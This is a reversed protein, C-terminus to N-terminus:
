GLIPSVTSDGLRPSVPSVAPRPSLFSQCPGLTVWSIPLHRHDFLWFNKSTAAPLTTLGFRLRTDFILTSYPITPSFSSPILDFYLREPASGLTFAVPAIGTWVQTGSDQRTKRQQQERRHLSPCLLASSLFFSHASDVGQQSQTDSSPASVCLVCVGSFLASVRLVTGLVYFQPRLACANYEIRVAYTTRNSHLDNFPARTSHRSCARSPFSIPHSGFRELALDFSIQSSSEAASTASGAPCHFHQTTSVSCSCLLRVRLAFSLCSILTLQPGPPFSQGASKARAPVPPASM